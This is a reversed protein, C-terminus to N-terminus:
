RSLATHSYGPRNWVLGCHTGIKFFHPKSDTPAGCGLYWELPRHTWEPSAILLELVPRYGVQLITKSASDDRRTAIWCAPGFSLPYLVLLVVVVVTAWFAAGPKKRPESM